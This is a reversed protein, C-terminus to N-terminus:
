ATDPDGKTRGTEQLQTQLQSPPVSAEAGDPQPGWGARVTRTAAEWEGRGRGPRRGADM